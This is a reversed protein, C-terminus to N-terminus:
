LKAVFSHFECHVFNIVVVLELCFTTRNEAKRWIKAKIIDSTNKYKFFAITVVQFDVTNQSDELNRQNSVVQCDVIQVKSQLLYANNEFQKRLHKCSVPIVKM